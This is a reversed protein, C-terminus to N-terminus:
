WDVEVIIYAMDEATDAAQRNSREGLSQGAEIWVAALMEALKESQNTMSLPAYETTSGALGIVIQAQSVTAEIWAHIIYARKGSPCTYCPVLEDVAVATYMDITVTDHIITGTLKIDDVQVVPQVSEIIPIAEPNEPVMGINLANKLASLVKKNVLM